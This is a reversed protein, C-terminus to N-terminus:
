DPFKLAHVIGQFRPEKRLPDLLPDVRPWALGANRAYALICAGSRSACIYPAGDPAPPPTSLPAARSM